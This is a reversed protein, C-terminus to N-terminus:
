RSAGALTVSAPALGAHDHHALGAGAFELLLDHAPRM